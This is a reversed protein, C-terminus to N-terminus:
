VGDAVEPKPRARRIEPDYFECQQRSVELGFTDKVAQAVQSPTDFCALSQVIFRKVEDKLAAM